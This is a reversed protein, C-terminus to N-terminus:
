MQLLLQTEQQKLHCKAAPCNLYTSFCAKSIPHETNCRLAVHVICMLLLQIIPQCSKDIVGLSHSHVQCIEHVDLSLCKAASYLLMVVKVNPALMCRTIIVVSPQRVMEHPCTKIQSQTLAVTFDAGASCCLKLQQSNFCSLRRRTFLRYM